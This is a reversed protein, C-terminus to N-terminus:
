FVGFPNEEVFGGCVGIAADFMEEGFGLGEMGSGVADVEIGREVIFLIMEGAEVWPDFDDEGDGWALGVVM